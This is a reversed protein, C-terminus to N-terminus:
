KASGNVSENLKAVLSALIPKGYSIIGVGTAGTGIGLMMAAGATLEYEHVLVGTFISCLLMVLANYNWTRKKKSDMDVLARVIVCM